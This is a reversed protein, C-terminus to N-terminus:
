DRATEWLGMLNGESDAFYAIYGHGARKKPMLPKGGHQEVQGLTADIDDVDITIVPNQVPGQKAIMGGNISGSETLKGDDGIPTTQARHFGGGGPVETITWGFIEEYFGKARAMDSAPVDFHVVRGSM